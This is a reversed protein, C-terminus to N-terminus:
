IKQRFYYYFRFSQIILYPSLVLLLAMPNLRIFGLWISSTLAWLGGDNSYEGVVLLGVTYVLPPLVFFGLGILQLALRLEKNARPPLKTM